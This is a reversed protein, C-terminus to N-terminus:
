FKLLAVSEKLLDFPNRFTKQYNSIASCGPCKEIIARKAKRWRPDRLTEVDFISLDVAYEQCPMLRGDADV